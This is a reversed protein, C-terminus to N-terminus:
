DEGKELVTDVGSRFQAYIAKQQELYVTGVDTIYYYQRRRGDPAIRKGVECIYGASELRYIAAYPFAIQLTGKSCQYIMDTLEGIYSERLSLLHLIMLESLAKKLNDELASPILDRPSDEKKDM